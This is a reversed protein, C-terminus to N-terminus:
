NDIHKEAFLEQFEKGVFTCPPSQVKLFLPFEHDSVLITLM